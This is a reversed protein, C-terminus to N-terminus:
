RFTVLLPKNAKKAIVLGTELDDYVWSEDAGVRKLDNRVKTDRDQAKLPATSILLTVIWILVYQRMSDRESVPVTEQLIKSSSECERCVKSAPM